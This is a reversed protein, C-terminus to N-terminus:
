FSPIDLTAQVTLVNVYYTIGRNRSCLRIWDPPLPSHGAWAQNQVDAWEGLTRPGGQLFGLKQLVAAPNPEFGEPYTREQPIQVPVYAANDNSASSHDLYRPPGVREVNFAQPALADGGKSRKWKLEM